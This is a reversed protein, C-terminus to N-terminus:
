QVDRRRSVRVRFSVLTADTANAANFVVDFSDLGDVLGITAILGLNDYSAFVGAWNATKKLESDAAECRLQTWHTPFSVLHVAIM